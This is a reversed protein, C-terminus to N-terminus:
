KFLEVKMKDVVFISSPPNFHADDLVVLDILSDGLRTLCREEECLISFLSVYQIHLQEALAGLRANMTQVEEVAPNKPLELYVPPLSKHENIYDALVRPLDPPWQPVPGVLVIKTNPLRQQLVPISYRLRDIVQESSLGMAGWVWRGGLILITPQLETLKALARQNIGECNGRSSVKTELLPPCGGATYQSLAFPHSKQLQVFGPYLAAAHSDGYIAISPSGQQTCAEDYPPLSEQNLDHCSGGRVDKLWESLDRNRALFPATEATQSLSVFGQCAFTLGGLAGIVAMALLLLRVRPAGPQRRRIPTEVYVFTVWALLLSIPIVLHKLKAVDEPSALLVPFSILPWHWLYLPYSILGVWVMPAAALFRYHAICSGPCWLLLATGVTPALAIWGPFVLESSFFLISASVIGLGVFSLAEAMKASPTKARLAFYGVVAGLCLEWFRSLPNYFAATEDGYSLWAGYGFSILGLPLGLFLFPVRVKAMLWLALPWFLYFQEEVSLSWLHLLPKRDAAIDFYDGEGWLVFNSFFFAGSFVHKGLRAFDDWFGLAWGALWSCALVLILAPFIRRIRREYFRRFGFSGKALDDWIIGSILFGSIVFFVDVGVFGGPLLSPYVHHV